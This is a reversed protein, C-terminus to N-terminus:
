AQVARCCTVARRTPRAEFLPLALLLAPAALCTPLPVEVLLVQLPLTPRFFFPTTQEKLSTNVSVLARITCCITYLKFFLLRFGKLQVGELTCLAHLLM